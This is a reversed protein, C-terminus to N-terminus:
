ITFGGEPEWVAGLEALMKHAQLCFFFFVYLPLSPPPTILLCPCWSTAPLVSCQVKVFPRAVKSSQLVQSFSASVFKLVGSAINDSWENPEIM